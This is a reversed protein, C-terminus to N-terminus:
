YVFTIYMIQFNTNELYVFNHMNNILFFFITYISQVSNHVNKLFNHVKFIYNHVHKFIKCKSYAFNHVNKLFNYVKFICFQTRQIFM